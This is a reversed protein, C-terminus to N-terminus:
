VEHVGGEEEAEPESVPNKKNLAGKQVSTKREPPVNQETLRNDDMSDPLANTEEMEDSFSSYDGYMGSYESKKM